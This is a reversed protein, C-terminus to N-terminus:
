RFLGSLGEGTAGETAHSLDHRSQVCPPCFLLRLGSDIPATGTQVLIADALDRTAAETDTKRSLATAFQLTAQTTTGTYNTTM